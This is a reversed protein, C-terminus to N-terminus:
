GNKKRFALPNRKVPRQPLIDPDLSRYLCEVIRAVLTNVRKYLLLLTKLTGFLLIDDSNISQQATRPATLSPAILSTITSPFTSMIRKVRIFNQLLLYRYCQSTISRIYIAPSLIALLLYHVNLASCRNRTYTHIYTHSGPVNGPHITVNNMVIPAVSKPTSV